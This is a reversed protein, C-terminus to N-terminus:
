GTQHLDLTPTGSRSCSDADPLNEHMPRAPPALSRPRSALAAKMRQGDVGPVRARCAPGRAENQNEIGLDTLPLRALSTMTTALALRRRVVLGLISLRVLSCGGMIM